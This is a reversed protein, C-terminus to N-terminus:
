CHPTKTSPPKRCQRQEEPNTSAKEPPKGLHWHALAQSPSLAPWEGRNESEAKTQGRGHEGTKGEPPRRKGVNAIPWNLPHATRDNSM